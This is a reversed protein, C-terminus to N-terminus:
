EREILRFWLTQGGDQRGWWRRTDPDVGWSEYTHALFGVLKDSAAQRTEASIPLPRTSTVVSAASVRMQDASWM